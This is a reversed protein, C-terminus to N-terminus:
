RRGRDTRGRRPPRAPRGLADLPDASRSRSPTSNSRARPRCGVLEPALATVASVPDQVRAAAGGPGGDGLTQDRADPGLRADAHQLVGRRNASIESPLAQARRRPAAGRRVAPRAPAWSAARSRRRRPARRACWWDARRSRRRSRSRARRRRRVHRVHLEDLEVGGGQRDALARKQDGLRHAALARQSTSASPRRNMSSRCGSASSAGRSTTAEACGHACASLDSWSDSAPAVEIGARIRECKGLRTSPHAATPRSRM